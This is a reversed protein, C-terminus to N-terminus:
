RCTSPRAAWTAPSSTPSARRARRDGRRRHRRGGPGVARHAGAPPPRDDVSMVGGNSQVILFTAPSATRRGAGGELRDLYGGVVPQLYANLATPRSRARVRPDRAPDRHRRHCAREALGRAGGRRAASTRRRQRLRQHLLDCLAEAGARGAAGAGGRAVEDPDVSHPGHRRGAHARGGRPAPRTPVVPAFEGWLGWTSRGTAAACRWCTASARAHHHRRHARGQAGAARQHRRDHRARDLAISPSAASRRAIGELFGASQDGRTSPVKATRVRRATEDLVFVDTFTGGVDVGVIPGAQDHRSRARLATTAAQDVAGDVGSASATTARRRRRRSLAWRARRARRAGPRADFPDGYGGGGPTELRVRQGRAIQVGVMKSAMPPTREGDDQRYSFRNLAAAEGGAVGLPRLSAASASCSRRRSATTWCSSRTSRASGAAIRGPAAATRGCRGNRHVDGPYAAELIELPPITATSIPANGHNLGDGEPNGGHGGGFFSFMVWRRGDQATAPSRCRTSRASLRLRQRARARGQRVRRFSVDILACSPRPTAASRSRRRSASCRAHRPHRVRDARLVGANAPVDPFVHKLAVYCAAIATSRAINVPGACAPSSRSFDLTM